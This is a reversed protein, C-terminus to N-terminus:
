LGCSVCKSPPTYNARLAAMWEKFTEHDFANFPIGTCAVWRLCLKHLGELQVTAMKGTAFLQPLTLATTPRKKNSNSESGSSPAPGAPAAAEARGGGVPAKSQAILVIHAQRQDETLDDGPMRRNCTKGVAFSQTAGLITWLIQM